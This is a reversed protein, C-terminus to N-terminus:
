APSAAARGRREWAARVARRAPVEFIRYALDSLGLVLAAYVLTIAGALWAAQAAKISPVFVLLIPFHLLYVAYSRDGLWVMARSALMPTRLALCLACPWALLCIPPLSSASGMDISLGLVLGAGLLVGPVKAHDVRSRWLVQGLFFGLLGRPVGDGVWPGGARGQLAFHVLAVVIAGGTVWRLTRDGRVAALVFVIYCVIEVSISWSPGNFTHSVNGVFAQM